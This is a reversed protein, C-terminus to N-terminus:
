NNNTDELTNRELYEKNNNEITKFPNIQKIFYFPNINKFCLYSEFSELLNEVLSIHRDMRETNMKITPIEKEVNNLKNELKDLTTKISQISNYIKYMKVNLLEVNKMYEFIIDQKYENM